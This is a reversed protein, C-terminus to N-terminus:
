YGYAGGGQQPYPQQQGYGAAPPYTGPPYASAPPQQGQQQPYQPYTTPQGPTAYGYGGQTWNTQGYAPQYNPAYGQAGYGPRNPTTVAGAGAGLVGGALAGIAAGRGGGALAGIAAGTGGGLLGGGLARSGPNYDNTCAALLLTSGILSAM